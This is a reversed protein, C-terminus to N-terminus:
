SSTIIEPKSTTESDRLVTGNLRIAGTDFSTLLYIPLPTELAAEMPLAIYMLIANLLPLPLDDHKKAKLADVLPAFGSIHAIGKEYLACAGYYRAINLDGGIHDARWKDRANAYIDWQGATLNDPLRITVDIDAM